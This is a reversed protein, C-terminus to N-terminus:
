GISDMRRYHEVLAALGPIADVLGREKAYLYLDFTHTRENRKLHLKQM